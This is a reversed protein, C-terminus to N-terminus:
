EYALVCSKFTFIHPGVHKLCQLFTSPTKGLAAIPLSLRCPLAGTTTLHYHIFAELSETCVMVLWLQTNITLLLLV